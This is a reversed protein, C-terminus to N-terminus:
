EVSKLSEVMPIKKLKFHMVRAVIWAFFMTMVLSILYSKVEIIRGFMVSDLEALAMIMRHLGTGLALGCLSGILSLLLNERFVYNSVEKDYFGLVKLTAIERIRESINVNTLNYLVVFALLGASIVLVVVIISLSSIMNEFSEASGRYFVISEIGDIGTLASGLASDNEENSEDMRILLQTPKASIGFTAKYTDGNMIIVHGVYNEFIGEVTFEVSSGNSTCRFASGVKLGMDSAMKESVLVGSKPIEVEAHTRRDRLVHFDKYAEEDDVVILDVSQDKNKINVSGSQQAILITEDVHDMQNVTDVIEEKEVVNKDSNITVSVQYKQLDEYQNSVIGGISDQIGFGAVLLATCGSIGIVTMFFRKKYRFLNRFTVKRTFSLKKWIFPIRELFIRKGNSPAKPRMLLAPTERLEKYVALWTALLVIAICSVSAMLALDWYFTFHADPLTYMMNWLHTILTPFVAFGVLVGVVCGCVSSIFAYSLYRMAITGKSYGLAKFTGIVSRQEDVMRTMTTLCILAAVLFFFLPFIKAISDMRDASSGYDMYSYHSQRDLVIWEGESMNEIDSKAKDLQEQADTLEEEAIRRNNELEKVGNEYDIRGQAVQAEGQAIQEEYDALQQNLDEEMQAISEEQATIAAQLQERTAESNAIEIMLELMQQRMRLDFYDENTLVKDEEPLADIQQNVEDLMSQLEQVQASSGGMSLQAKLMELQTRASEIQAQGQTQLLEIASKMDKIRNENYVLEEYGSQLQKDAEELQNEVDQKQQNFEDENKQYEELAQAKIEETRLSAREKGLQEIRNVLPDIVDDFYADDYSNYAKAGEATIYVETYIDSKFNDDFTLLFGDLSGDGISSSGKQYSLYYPIKVKGVVKLETHNLTDELPEDTGSSLQLVDGIQPGDTMIKGEEVVCEDESEPLRGEVLVAQNIYDKNSASMDEPLTMVKYVYETTDIMFVVDVSNTAHIGEVGEINRLEDIDEDVFGLTSYVQIDQLNYEDFYADATEKMLPASAKVGAFFAVGIAVIAFISFFRGFSKRIERLIDVYIKKM